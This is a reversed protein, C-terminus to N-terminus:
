ESQLQKNKKTPRFFSEFKQRSQQVFKAHTEKKHERARMKRGAISERMNSWRNTADSNKNCLFLVTMRQASRNQTAVIARARDFFKGVDRVHFQVLKMLSNEFLRMYHVRDIELKAQPNQLMFHPSECCDLMRSSQVGEISKEVKVIHIRDGSRFPEIGKVVGQMIRQNMREALELGANRNKYEAADRLGQTIAFDMVPVQRDILRDLTSTLTRVIRPASDIIKTSKTTDEPMMENFIALTADKQFKCYNRRVVTMGKCMISGKDNPHSLVRGAYCKKEVLLLEKFIYDVEISISKLNGFLDNNIDDCLKEAREFTQPINCQKFLLFVSDTDGYVTPYGKKACFQKTEDILKRGIATTAASIRPDRMTGGGAGAAGYMSNALIKLALQRSNLTGYKFKDKEQKMAKKTLSRQALLRELVKPLFGRYSQVVRQNRVSQDPDDEHPEVRHTDVVVHAPVNEDAALMTSFDLNSQDIISPYLSAFDVTAVPTNYFGAVAEQVTAGKFKGTKAPMTRSNDVIRNPIMFKRFNCKMRAQQGKFIFDRVNMWVLRVFERVDSWMCVRQAIKIPLIADRACYVAVDLRKRPDGTDWMDMMEVYDMDIKENAASDSENGENGENGENTSTSKQDLIVKSVDKLSYSDLQKNDRIYKWMDVVICGSHEFHDSTMDRGGANFRKTAFKMRMTPVIGSYFVEATDPGSSFYTYDSRTFRQANRDGSVVNMRPYASALIRQSFPAQQMDVQVDKGLQFLTRVKRNFEARSIGDANLRKQLKTFNEVQAVAENIRGEVMRFPMRHCLWFMYARTWWHRVDFGSINYGTLMVGFGGHQQRTNCMRRGIEVCLDQETDFCSIKTGRATPHDPAVSAVRGFCLVEEELHEGEDVTSTISCCIIPDQAAGVEPFQRRASLVELDFSVTTFPQAPKNNDVAVVQELYASGHANAMTVMRESSNATPCFHELAIWSTFTCMLDPDHACNTQESITRFMAETPTELHHVSFIELNNLPPAELGIKTLERSWSWQRCEEKRHEPTQFNQLKRFFDSARTSSRFKLRAFPFMVMGTDKNCDSRDEKPAVFGRLHSRHVLDVGIVDKDLLQLKALDAASMISPVRISVCVPVPFLITADSGDTCKGFVLVHSRQMRKQQGARVRQEITANRAIQPLDHDFEEVHQVCLWFRGKADYRSAFSM